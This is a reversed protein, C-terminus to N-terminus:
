LVSQLLCVIDDISDSRFINNRLQSANPSGRLYWVIHKKMEKVAREAGNVQIFEELHYLATEVKKKLPLATNDQCKLRMKIQNFIWPFGLAGRGIMISDCGTLAIMDCGNKPTIIDGNGIVPIKVHEKVLAIREWFSHGSFGMSQSRPHLTIASAGCDEAIKAFETDVWEYKVWGSRIKVTIPLSTAKVMNSILESFLKPNKLLASGGNKRVVKRVPCGCNIDIFDPKRTEEIFQAAYVMSKVDSGFLQIGIPREEQRFFLLKNTNKSNHIIGEASVMESVVVDAGHIKCLTRFVSDTIGAM